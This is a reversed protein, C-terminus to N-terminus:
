FLNATFNVFKSFMSQSEPERLHHVQSLNREAQQQRQYATSSVILNEEDFKVRKKPTEYDQEIVNQEHIINRSTLVSKERTALRLFWPFKSLFPKKKPKEANEESDSLTRKRKGINRAASRFCDVDSETENISVNQGYYIKDFNQFIFNGCSIGFVKM